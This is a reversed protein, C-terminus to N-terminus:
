QTLHRAEFDTSSLLTSFVVKFFPLGAALPTQGSQPVPINLIREAFSAYFIQYFLVDRSVSPDVGISM